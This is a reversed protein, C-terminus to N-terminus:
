FPIGDDQLSNNEQAPQPKGKDSVSFTMFPKDDKMRKWAAIRRVMGLPGTYDPAAENGKKDNEFLVGVKEYVEIINKGDKTQEKVLVVKIDKGQDNLKGQLILRQTDFPKFAAGKNNDDYDAM